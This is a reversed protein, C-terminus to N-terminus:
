MASSFPAPSGWRKKWRKGRRYAAMLLKRDGVKEVCEQFLWTGSAPVCTTTLRPAPVVCSCGCLILM